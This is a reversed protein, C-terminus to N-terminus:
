MYFSEDMTIEDAYQWLRSQQADMEYILEKPLDQLGYRLNYAPDMLGDFVGDIIGYVAEKKEAPSGTYLQELLSDLQITRAVDMMELQQFIDVNLIPLKLNMLGEYGDTIQSKVIYLQSIYSQLHDILDQVALDLDDPANRYKAFLLTDYLELKWLYGELYLATEDIIPYVSDFLIGEVKQVGPVILAEINTDKLLDIESARIISTTILSGFIM